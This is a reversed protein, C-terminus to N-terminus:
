SERGPSRREPLRSSPWGGRQEASSGAPQADLVAPSLPGSWQVLRLRWRGASRAYCRVFVCRLVQGDGLRLREQGQVVALGPYCHVSAYVPELASFPISDSRDRRGGASLTRASLVRGDVLVVRGDESLLSQWPLGRGSEESDAWARELHNLEDRTAVPRQVSLYLGAVLLWAVIRCLWGPVGGNLNAELQLFVELLVLAGVVVWPALRLTRASVAEEPVPVEVPRPLAIQLGKHYAGSATPLPLGELQRRLKPELRADVTEDLLVARIVYPSRSAAKEDLYETEAQKDGLLIRGDSLRTRFTSGDPQQFVKNLAAVMATLTAEDIRADHAYGAGGSFWRMVMVPASLEQM